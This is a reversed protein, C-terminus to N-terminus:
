TQYRSTKRRHHSHWLLSLRQVIHLVTFLLLSLFFQGCGGFGIEEELKYKGGFTYEMSVHLHLHLRSFIFCRLTHRTAPLYHRCCCRCRLCCRSCLSSRLLSVSHLPDSLRYHIGVFIFVARTSRRCLM